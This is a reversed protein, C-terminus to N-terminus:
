VRYRTGRRQGTRRLRGTSVLGSLLALAGARDLGTLERVAQNTIPRKRAHEVVLDEVETQSMRYVAEPAIREALTYHTGGREGHQVLLGADRLRRLAQRADLADVHLIERASANTLREGRAAHVLLLRDRPEVEDRREFDLVWARERPTIPGHLPLEVRVRDDDDDFFRPPDLLAEAMKDEIVDIGRGADEALHFRRLVSIVHPNRPANASRLTQVTVPEPLGGPSTVVVRDPHLEVVVPTRLIEYSRHAVANAIAERAAQEPLRPLEHRYLGTVVLDSGLEAQLFRHADRVQHHVPGAFRERRDYESSGAPYRRVEIVAKTQGLEEAPDTLFLAGAITLARDATLLGQERLRDDLTRDDPSWQFADCVEQLLAPDMSEPFRLSTATSEFRRLARESMYQLLEAGFLAVNHGGRRVLPRGDSTQAFGEERRQIVVAVVRRGDVEIERVGYRGIDRADRAAQHIADDTGQDLRRGLVRRDNDVGVLIAGGNTNSLAVMSEQLARNGTGTKLELRDHEREVLAAFEGTTYASALEVGPNDCIIGLKFLPDSPAKLAQM